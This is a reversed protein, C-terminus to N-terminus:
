QLYYQLLIHTCIDKHILTKMKKLYICLILIDPDCPLELKKKLSSVYEKGYHIYWNINGDVVSLPEREEVDKGM